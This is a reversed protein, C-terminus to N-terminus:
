RRLRSEMQEALALLRRYSELRRVSVAGEAVAAAVRCGPEHRHLCDRFRCGNALAAIERFGGAVERPPPLPPSFDRVGPSDILEGGSPLAYLSSTTTTHRGSESARTIEDVTAAVGPV